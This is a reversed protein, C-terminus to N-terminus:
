EIYIQFTRIDMPNLTVVLKDTEWDSPELNRKKGSLAGWDLRRRKWDSIHEYGPLTTETFNLVVFDKLIDALNIAVPQSLTESEGNAYQHGLRLLLRKENNPVLSLTIPMIQPPLQRQLTSLRTQMFPLEFSSSGAFVFPASFMGDMQSRALSAGSNGSGFVLRHFGKIVIGEGQREATGYPPYATIGLKTENIPEDVGRKDDVLTRRHVMLELSGSELSSGGQSRDVLIAMSSDEDQIFIGANVPYYNGAIPEFEELNWTPRFSRKRSLFERANSDTYFIDGSQISSSFRTVVEKGIGDEVPIPGICFEIDIFPKGTVIRTTQQIWPEHFSTRIETYSPCQFITADFNPTAEFFTPESPRFIYAGSNQELNPDNETHSTDTQPSRENEKRSRFTRKRSDFSAYYGWSQNLHIVVNEATEVKQLLGTKSDFTMELVGNSITQTRKTAQHGLSRGFRSLKSSSDREPRTPTDATRKIRYVTFGMPPIKLAMFSLIINESKMMEQQYCPIQKNSGIKTLTYNGLSSVPVQILEDRDYGLANYVILYYGSASETVSCKTENLLQCYVLDTLYSDTGFLYRRIASSVHNM